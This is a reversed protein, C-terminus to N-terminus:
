MEFQDNDNRRAIIRIRLRVDDDILKLPCVCVFFFLWSRICNRKMVNKM